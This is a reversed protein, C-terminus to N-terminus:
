SKPLTKNYIGLGPTDYTIYFLFHIYSNVKLKGQVNIYIDNKHSWIIAIFHQSLSDQLVQFPFEMLVQKMEASADNGCNYLGFFTQDAGFGNKTRTALKYNSLLIM